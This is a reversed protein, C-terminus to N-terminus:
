VVSKRDQRDSQHHLRAGHPAKPFPYCWSVAAPGTASIYAKRKEGHGLEARQHQSRPPSANPFVGVSRLPVDRERGVVATVFGIAAVPHESLADVNRDAPLM